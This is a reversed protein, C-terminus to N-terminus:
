IKLVLISSEPGAKYHNPQKRVCRKSDGYLGEVTEIRSLLEYFSAEGAWVINIISCYNYGGIAGTDTLSQLM